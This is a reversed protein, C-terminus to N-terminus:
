ISGKREAEAKLATMLGDDGSDTLQVHQWGQRVALEAIRSHPVFLLTDRLIQQRKNDLMQWLNELAESSSVSIADPAAALLLEGDQHPKSRQYCAAYEVKAGRMRLTDGLLERGSDGRFIMVRRGAVNQLEPMSLLGESDFRQTPVIVNTIGREHLAKTSGQGIAAIKLKAPLKGEKHIAAIGYHVANPSVFIALDFEKLRSIQEKLAQPNRAATIELLPFLLVTGGAQEIMHALKVAQDRPRTVAIKMGSLPLNGTM